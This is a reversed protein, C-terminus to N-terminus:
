TVTKPADPFGDTTALKTDLAPPPQQHELQEAMQDFARYLIGFDDLRVEAIRYSFQGHGIEDMSDKLLQM